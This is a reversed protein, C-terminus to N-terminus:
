SASIEQVQCRTNPKRSHQKKKMKSLYYFLSEENKLNCFDHLTTDKSIQENLGFHKPEILIDTINSINNKNLENSSASQNYNRINISTVKELIKEIQVNGDNGFIQNLLKNRFKEKLNKDLIVINEPIEDLIFKLTDGTKLQKYKEL